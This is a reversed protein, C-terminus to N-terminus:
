GRGSTMASNDRVVIGLSHKVTSDETLGDCQGHSENTEERGAHTM